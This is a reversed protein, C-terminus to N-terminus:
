RPDYRFAPGADALLPAKSDKESLIPRAGSVPWDIGIAPDDFRIARDLQPAYPASVKYLVETNPQLTVFGHAFGEPVYIQNWEAESVVLGVWGGYTPAGVRIDVAVDFIAGRVVRVLKAQAAPPEQYHLGRLVGAEVSFSHNDQVFNAAIGVDALAAASWVESFFGRHDGHRTPRLEMVDGLGLKRATTVREELFVPAAPELVDSRPAKTAL